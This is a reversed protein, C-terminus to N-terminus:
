PPLAHLVYANIVADKGKVHLGVILEALGSGSRAVPPVSSPAHDQESRSGRAAKASRRRPRQDTAVLRGSLLM